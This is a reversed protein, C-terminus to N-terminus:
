LGGRAFRLMLEFDHLSKTTAELAKGPVFSMAPLLVLVVMLAVVDQNLFELWQGPSQRKVERLLVGGRACIILGCVWVSHLFMARGIPDDGRDSGQLLYGAGTLVLLSGIALHGTARERQSAMM